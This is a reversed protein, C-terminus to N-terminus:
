DELNKTTGLLHENGEYPICYKWAFGGITCYKLLDDNDIYAFEAVEWKLEEDDRVLVLQRFSFECKPKEQKVGLMKLCDKARPETSQMLADILKQKEEETAFRTLKVINDGVVGTDFLLYSMYTCAYYEIRNNGDIRKLIFVANENSLVNGDKCTTYEPVELMLDYKTKEQEWVKGELTYAYIDGYTVNGNSETVLGIIPNEENRVDWYIIRANRGDRTVIRGEKEGNSIAKALELDFDIRVMKTEM